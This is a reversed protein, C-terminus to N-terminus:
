WLAMPGWAKRWHDRLRTCRVELPAAFGHGAVHSATEHSSSGASTGPPAAAGLSLRRSLESLGASSRRTPTGLQFEIGQM